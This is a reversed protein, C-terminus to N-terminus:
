SQAMQEFKCGFIPYIPVSITVQSIYNSGTMDLYFTLCNHAFDLKHLLNFVCGALFTLCM